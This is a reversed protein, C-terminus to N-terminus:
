GQNEDACGGIYLYEGNVVLEGELGLAWARNTLEGNVVVAGNKMFFGVLGRVNGDIVVLGGKADLCVDKMANGKIYIEGGEMGMGVFDMVNGDVVVLGGRMDMGVYGKVDGEVIVVGQEMRTGISCAVDGKVYVIIDIDMSDGVSIEGNVYSADLEVVKGSYHDKLLSYVFHWIEWSSWTRGCDKARKLFDNIDEQTVEGVKDLEEAWSLPSSNRQQVL